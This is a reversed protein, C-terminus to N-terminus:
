LSVSLWTKARKGLFRLCSAFFLNWSRPTGNGGRFPMLRPDPLCLQAPVRWSPFAQPPFTSLWLPSFNRLCCRTSSTKTSAGPSPICVDAHAHRAQPVETGSLSGRWFIATCWTQHPLPCLLPFASGLLSCLHSRPKFVWFPPSCSWLLSCGIRAKLLPFSIRPCSKFTIARNFCLSACLRPRGQSEVSSLLKPDEPLSSSSCRLRRM